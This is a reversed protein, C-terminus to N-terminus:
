SLLTERAHDLHARLRATAAGADGAAIADYIARHEGLFAQAREASDHVMGRTMRRQRDRLTDYLEILIPNGTAAALAQHFDGDADAFAHLDGAAIHQAQADLTAEIAALARQDPAGGPRETPALSAAGRAPAGGGAALEIGHREVVWRTEIVPGVEERSVPVVLAGRKPYLRLYGLSALQVFAERVPTRSVGLEAAVQGESLMTGEAMEGSIVAEKVHAHVRQVATQAPQRPPAPVGVDKRLTADCAVQM